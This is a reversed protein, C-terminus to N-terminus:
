VLLAAIMAFVVVGGWGYREFTVTAVASGTAGGFCMAGMFITNLRGRAEPRLSFIVAQNSVLAIQVGLDLIIVGVILGSLSDWLGFIVWSILTLIAGAAILKQPGARDALHGALPAALIGVAGVFGFLGAIEAGMEYSPEQLHLALITWFSIFSAFLLAQTIAAMRLARFEIWLASMSKLLAPYSTSSAVKFAPLRIGMWAAAALAMPVAIWFMQRWGMHATVFGALTRSLLIGCFLGSMVVGIAAARKNPPALQATFPVIQQAVSATMGLILSAAILVGATPALAAAALAAAMVLFQLVILRRREIMDGLPVLFILAIAYGLQTATPILTTASGPLDRELVGLMPQNYYVNAAAIGAAAAM